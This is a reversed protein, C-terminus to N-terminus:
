VLNTTFISFDVYREYHLHTSHFREASIVGHASIERLFSSCSCLHILRQLRHIFSWIVYWSVCTPNAHLTPPSQRRWWGRLAPPPTIPMFLCLVCVPHIMPIDLIVTASWLVITLPARKLLTNLPKFSDCKDYDTYGVPCWLSFYVM